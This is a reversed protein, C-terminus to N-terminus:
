ERSYQYKYAKQGGSTTFTEFFKETKQAKASGDAFGVIGTGLRYTINNFKKTTTGTYRGDFNIGELRSDSTAQTANNPAPAFLTCTLGYEFSRGDVILATESVRAISSQSLSSAAQNAQTAGCNGGYYSSSNPDYSYGGVGDYLAGNVEFGTPWLSTASPEQGAYVRWRPLMAYNAIIGGSTRNAAPGTLVPDKQDPANPSYFLRISKVYPMVRSIWACDYDLGDYCAQDDTVAPAFVDDSDSSYMINALVIQKGNSLGQTKKASDKAQAFVPFLIAALIAIIAIVVLLEILTFARNRNM